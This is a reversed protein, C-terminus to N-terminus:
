HLFLPKHQCDPTRKTLKFAAFSTRLARFRFLFWTQASIKCPTILVTLHIWTWRTVSSQQMVVVVVSFCEIPYNLFSVFYVWIGRFVHVSRGVLQLGLYARSVKEAAAYMGSVDDIVFGKEGFYISWWSYEQKNNCLSDAILCKGITKSRLIARNWVLMELYLCHLLRDRRILLLWLVCELAGHLFWPKELPMRDFTPLINICRISSCKWSDGIIFLPM